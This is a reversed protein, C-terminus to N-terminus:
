SKQFWFSSGGVSATGLASSLLERVTSVQALRACPLLIKIGKAGGLLWAALLYQESWLRDFANPPYDDPLFIDHLHVITGVPIRPLIELFFVTVDSAPLSRHSGDFFIVTGPTVLALFEDAIDELRRHYVRDCLASIALRPAPDVSVIKMPFGGAHRAQGAVRTSMGSGIELYLQPRLHRLFGYLATSDFADLFVNKRWPLEPHAPDEHEPWARCDSATALCARLLDIQAQYDVDIIEALAAHTARGSGWRPTAAPDPPFDVRLLDTGFGPIDLANLVYWRFEGRLLTRASALRLRLALATPCYRVKALLSMIAPTM